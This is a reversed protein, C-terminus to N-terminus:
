GCLHFKWFWIKPNQKSRSVMQWNLMHLVDQAVSHSPNDTSVMTSEAQALCGDQAVYVHHIRQQQYWHWSLRHRTCCIPSTNTQQRQFRDPHQFQSQLQSIKCCTKMQYPILLVMINLLLQSAPLPSESHHKQLCPISPLSLEQGSVGHGWFLLRQNGVLGQCEKANEKWSHQTMTDHECKSISHVLLLSPYRKCITLWWLLWCCWELPPKKLGTFMKFADARCWGCSAQTGSAFQRNCCWCCWQLPPKKLGTSMKSADDSVSPIQWNQRCPHVHNCNERFHTQCNDEIDVITVLHEAIQTM